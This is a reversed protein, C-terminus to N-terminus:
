PRKRRRTSRNLKQLAQLLATGNPRGLGTCADWGAKAKYAGNDGKTIDVLGGSAAVKDAYLLPNLYGVPTGLKENLLAVLGAWLPAVASTGGIVTDVEDVRVNYGTRPDANGAVDPVGRGTRRGSGASTPVGADSQYSPRAFKESVGGGSAGGGVGNNWVGEETVGKAGALVYTGGCALAYPSAAPFDVHTGGDDVGDTSGDDGSAVCVTVGLAAADQLAQDFATIAQDTWSVEPGGWSISVVSPQRVRDHIATTLANLFGQDTNSAFYVALRAGPAIVGAIEIDLMVEGDPGNAEGTPHNRGGGVAVATVHPATTLGQKKFYTKLDGPRYGGGLELIAICQGQGTAGTPFNYLKALEGPDFSAGEAARATRRRFHARAITRDDLGFVGTVIGDLEAPVQVAGQRLRHMAGSPLERRELTVQFAESLAATTGSLVVSRKAASVEVVTLGYDHAFAEVKLLDAPNAGHTAELEERSLLKRKSFAAAGAQDAFARLASPASKPRVLVTVHAHEHPDAAVGRAGPLPAKHSGPVEVYRPKNGM